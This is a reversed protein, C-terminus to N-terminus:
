SRDNLFEAVRRSSLANAPKGARTPRTTSVSSSGCWTTADGPVRRLVAGLERVLALMANNGWLVDGFLRRVGHSRAHAALRM